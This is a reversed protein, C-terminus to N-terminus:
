EDGKLVAKLIGYVRNYIGNAGSERSGAVNLVAPKVKDLWESFDKIADGNRINELDIHLHPRNNTKTLEVTLASGAGMETYTFIVTADSEVVNKETRAPYNTTELETIKHYKEPLIGDETRRGKPISGGYDIGLDIAADLGARDAGTQGGSIIKRVGHNM